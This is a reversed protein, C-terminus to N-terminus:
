NFVLCFSCNNLDYSRIYICEFVLIVQVKWFTVKFFYGFVGEVIRKYEDYLSSSINLLYINEQNLAYKFVIAVLSRNNM